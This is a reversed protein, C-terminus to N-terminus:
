LQLRSMVLEFVQTIEMKGTDIIIADEAPILPAVRRNKDQFDREELQSIIQNYSVKHGKGTLEDFRRKARIKTSANLFFKHKAQPFINTGMDRGDAVLGKGQLAFRRQKVSLNARVKAISAIKSAMMGVKEERIRKTVDNNNLFVRLTSDKIEFRVTSHNICELVQIENTTDVNNDLLCLTASRYLAGSDLLNYNFEQSLKMSLTGKGVASTGDITIINYM